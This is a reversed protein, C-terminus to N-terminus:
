WFAKMKMMSQLSKNIVEILELVQPRAEPHNTTNPIYEQFEPEAKVIQRDEVIFRIAGDRHRFSSNSVDKIRETAREICAMAVSHVDGVMNFTSGCDDSELLLENGKYLRFSIPPDAWPISWKNYPLNAM